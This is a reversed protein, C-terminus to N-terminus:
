PFCGSARKYTGPWYILHGPQYFTALHVSRNVIHIFALLYGGSVSLLCLSNIILLEESGPCLM